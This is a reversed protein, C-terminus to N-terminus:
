KLAKFADAFKKDKKPKADTAPKKTSVHEPLGKEPTSAFDHLQEKSMGLVGKNEPRVAEPDHEAIATLRRFAKSNAPM